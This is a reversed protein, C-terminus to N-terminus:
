AEEEARRKAQRRAMFFVFAYVALSAFYFPLRFPREGFIESLAGHTLVQCAIALLWVVVGWATALWLGVAVVLDLVGYFVTTSQWDISQGAFGGDGPVPMYGVIRGWHALGTSLWVVANLRLFAVLLSPWPWGDLRQLWGRAAPEAAVDDDVPTTTM